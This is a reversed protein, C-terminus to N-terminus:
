TLIEFIHFANRRSVKSSIHWMSLPLIQLSYRPYVAIQRISCSYVNIFYNINMGTYEVFQLKDVRNM